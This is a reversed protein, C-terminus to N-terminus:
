SLQADLFGAALGNFLAPQEAHLWHGSEPLVDLGAQPFLSRIPDWHSDLIYDSQGGRIFRVPGEYCGGSPPGECLAPYDSGLAALNFRWRYSGDEARRLSGLLFQIVGPEGIFNGMRAEAEERSGCAPNAVAELAAFVADHRPPYAVPAIDAVVLSSVLEPRSLAIEMAVKGGLSHGVLAVGPLGQEAIWNAVHTAMVGIPACDLWSSRGHNPLDLSHVAYRPQLSRALSGLNNGSGFLGHLLVVDPGSGKLSSYLKLSM